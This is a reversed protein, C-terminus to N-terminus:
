DPLSVGGRANAAAEGGDGLAAAVSCGLGVLSLVMRIRHGDMWRDRVDAWREPPDDADWTQIERNLPLNNGVTLAVEAVGCALAVGALTRERGDRGAVVALVGAALAANTVFPMARAMEKDLEQHYRVYQPAPLRRMGAEPLVGGVYIGAIIGNMIPGAARGVARLMM